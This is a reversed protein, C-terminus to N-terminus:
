DDESQKVTTVVPCHVNLLISQAVSGFLVKGTPSRKKPGVVIYRVDHNEAYQIVQKSPDGVLGVPKGDVGARELTESAVATARERVQEMKVPKGTRETSIQELEIFESRSLVHIVHLEDGFAEAISHAERIVTSAHETDDVAAVVVMDLSIGHTSVFITTM